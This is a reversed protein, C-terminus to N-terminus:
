RDRGSLLLYARQIPDSVRAALEDRSETLILPKRRVVPANITVGAAKYGEAARRIAAAVDIGNPLYDSEKGKSESPESKLDSRPRDSATGELLTRFRAHHDTGPLPRDSAAEHLDVLRPQQGTAEAVCETLLEIFLADPMDPTAEGNKIRAKLASRDM